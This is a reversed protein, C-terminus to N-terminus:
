GGTLPTQTPPTQAPSTRDSRPRSADEGAAIRRRLSVLATEMDDLLRTWACLGTDQRAIFVYDVGETGILPLLIRCAERLRRRARNRVVSGGVKRTATFGAGAAPRPEPRRRAQVVLNRKREAAGDAVYLFERRARLREVAIPPTNRDSAISAPGPQSKADRILRQSAQPGQRPPASSYAPWEQDGHAFPLRPAAQAQPQQAPFDTQHVRTV